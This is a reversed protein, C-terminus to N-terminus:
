SFWCVHSNENKKEFPMLVLLIANFFKQLCEFVMLGWVLVGYIVVLDALLIMNKELLTPFVWSFQSTEGFNGCFDM